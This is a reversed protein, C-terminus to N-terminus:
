ACGECPIGIGIYVLGTRSKEKTFREAMKRGFKTGSMPKLGNDRMWNKYHEYLASAGVICDGVICADDIFQALIDEDQRYEQTAANVAAPPNLGQRQWELCGQVMWYLIGSAETRLKAPLDKQVKREHPHQPDEVFSMRFPILTLRKWLAYDDAHAHPKSNTMLILTHSPRFAVERRAYPARGVLEGGGTLLKLKSGDFSCGDNTESAIALRLGQLRMIDASPGSSSRMRGQDLLLEPQIAGALRPGLADSIAGFATDKGNRGRGEGIFVKHEIVEGVLCMGAVRQFFDVLDQNAAFIEHLANKFLPCDAIPDFTTPCYAKLYQEPRGPELQGTRLNVVGNVCALMWPHLDWETGGIGLSGEGIASFEVVQKRFALTNLNKIIGVVAKINGITKEIKQKIVEREGADDAQRLQRELDVTDAELEAEARKFIAQATDMAQIPQVVEAIDWFHGKFVYWVGATHDFCLQGRYIYTFLQACGKQGEHAMGVVDQTTLNLSKMLEAADATLEAKFEEKTKYRDGGALAKEITMAGYTAGDAPRHVTDWKDRYRKSDRIIEDIVQHAQDDDVRGCFFALISCASLDADSDSPLGANDGSLLIRLKEAQKSAYARKLVTEADIDVGTHARPASRPQEAKRHKEIFADLEAQRDEIVDLGPLTDGTLAFYRGTDYCELAGIKCWAGAPKRGRGIIHLGKGSLSKETCSKFHDVADTGLTLTAPDM